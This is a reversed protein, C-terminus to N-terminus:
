ALQALRERLRGHITLRELGKALGRTGETTPHLRFFESVEAERGLGVLPVVQELLLPLYGSGQFMETLETLHSSLWRWTPERGDPNIAAQAAVSLVHSRNIRGATALELLQTVLAPDHSWALARAFRQAEQTSRPGAELMKLVQRFGMAGGTRVRAVAVASRLNADVADWGSFRPALAAAFERDLRARAYSLRDRLIGNSAPEGPKPDLGIRETAFALSERADKAVRGLDPFDLATGALVGHIAEVVLRDDTGRLARAARAFTGWDAEGSLLFAGLDQVVTWRDAAPRSPLVALLRDLLPGEYLVRYFGTAGPNLHVTATPPARLLHERTAFRLRERKGDVDVVMPIPWPEEETSGLYAFRRQTLRIGEPAARATVVPLGPRDTWPGAIAAVKEGSAGELSEWLAETRANAYRFRELYNTVGLRFRDEGLFGDLMALVAAGKGYSIEDFIQSLEAPDQVGTRIPHTARLSDGDLAAAMGAVRLFYDAWPDLEPAIRETIKTEMLAAFSENLWIDDWWAMTVLNGFWQHSVEHAMTEVIDRRSFAGSSADFLLRAEQFSIAGWNEMAGFAHEAIALLDLKPLPYPIGYYTECAALVKPGVEAAWRCAERRGPASLVRVAVKGSRTELRDFSGVALYFLYTSMPPTPEFEWLVSPGDPQSSRVAGNTVVELGPPARVSLHLRVKRDPRDACPFIKRAGTPECHTTLVHGTGHPSRYLGLLSKTEVRGSFEVTVSASRSPLKGLVLGVGAPGPRFPVPSGDQHVARVELGEADLAPDAAVYSAPFEVTGTWSLREVDVNLVLRLDAAPFAPTRPVAETSRTTPM